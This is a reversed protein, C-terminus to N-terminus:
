PAGSRRRASATKRDVARADLVSSAPSESSGRIDPGDGFVAGGPPSLRDAYHTGGARGKLEPASTAVARSDGGPGATDCRLPSVAHGLDHAMLVATRSEVGRGLMDAFRGIVLGRSRTTIAPRL